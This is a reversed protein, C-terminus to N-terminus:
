VDRRRLLSAAAALVVATYALYIGLGVWPPLSGNAPGVQLVAAGANTPLYATISPVLLGVLPLVFLFGFLATLAGATSRVLWGFGAGLAATLALFLAAGGLARVVGPSTLAVSIGASALVARATLFTALVAALSAGFTVATVVVVKAWLVPLRRPVAVLSSRVLGTAYESSVVLAGLAGVLLQTFSVGALAGGTPDGAPDDPSTGGLVVTLAPSIGALGISLVSAVVIWWASRTSRFKIWEAAVVRAWTIRIDRARSTSSTVAPSHTTTM